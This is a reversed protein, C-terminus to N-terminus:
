HLECGFELNGFRIKPPNNFLKLLEIEKEALPTEAIPKRKTKGYFKKFNRLAMKYDGTQKQMLALYYQGPNFLRGRDKSFAKKYYHKARQYDRSLRLSEAYKVTINFNSSDLQFAERYYHAAAEHNGDESALDGQETWQKFTQAKAITALFLFSVILVNRM